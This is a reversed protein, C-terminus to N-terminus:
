VKPNVRENLLKRDEYEEEEKKLTKWLTYVNDILLLVLLVALVEYSTYHGFRYYTTYAMFSVTIRVLAVYMKKVYVFAYIIALIDAMYSYRERMRPLLFVMLSTCILATQLLVEKSLGIKLTKKLVVYLFVLLVAAMFGIGARSYLEVYVDEGILYYINPFIVSLSESSGQSQGYYILLLEKLPRGGIWAPIVAALYILPVLFFDRFRIKKLFFLLVLIPAFFISQLKLAAAIGYFVMAMTPKEKIIYLFCLMVFAVYISDCQGWMSSNSIVTPALWVIGFPLLPNSEPKIEKVIRAAVAALLLDFLISVLKIGLLTDLPLKTILWLIYMYPPTYNYFSEGIAKFGFVKLQNTWPELFVEWDGSEFRIFSIRIFLGIGLLGAAMLIDLLAYEKKRIKVKYELNM